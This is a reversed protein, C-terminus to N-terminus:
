HSLKARIDLYKLGGDEYWHTWLGEKQNNKYSGENKKQGNKYYETQIM